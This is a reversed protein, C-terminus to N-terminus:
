ENVQKKENKYLKRNNLVWVRDTFEGPQIESLAKQMDFMRADLIDLYHLVEAEPIMPKKPSGFEPEYHHSLVMHQLLISSEEDLGVKNAAKDIRKIGQVIHGLLQGEATYETALGLKNADLEEIKAIDHLIIGAFLLNKDLFSYIESIKEGAQLMTLTHYLLGSRIAHHNQVAAPHTLLREGSEAVILQVMERIKIDEIKLTYKFLEDYMDESSIPAVPIFENINVGDEDIAPRIKDIKVQKKGQWDVVNGKVKVLINKVLQNEDEPSCDWMRAVIEGSSDGLLIDLYKNGGGTTKSEVKRILFFAMFSEGIKFENIKREWMVNVGNMYM